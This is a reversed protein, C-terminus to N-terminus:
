GTVQKIASANRSIWNMMAGDGDATDLFQGFLAPDLLNYNRLNVTPRGLGESRVLGGEAYSLRSRVPARVSPSGLHDLAVSRAHIARMANLGYHHVTEKPMVYEDAHVIGRPTYKGGPGTWGGEAFGGFASMSNAILLTDAAAQLQTAGLA